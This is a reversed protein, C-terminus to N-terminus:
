RCHPCSWVWGEGAKCFPVDLWVGPPETAFLLGCSCVFASLLKAMPRLM